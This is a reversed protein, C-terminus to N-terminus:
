NATVTATLTNSYEGAYQEGPDTMVDFSINDYYTHDTGEVKVRDGLAMAVQVISTNEADESKLDIMDGDGLGTNEPTSYSVSYGNVANTKVELDVERVTDDVLTIDPLGVSGDGATGDEVFKVEMTEPVSYKVLLDASNDAMAVASLAVVGLVAKKM